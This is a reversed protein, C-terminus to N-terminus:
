DKTVVFPITKMKLGNNITAYYRGNFFKALDIQATNRKEIPTFFTKELVLHGLSDYIKLRTASEAKSKFVINIFDNSPNPFLAIESDESQFVSIIKSYEFSGDTDITKLRYYTFGEFPEVDWEQYISPQNNAKIIHFTQWDRLNESKELIFELIDEERDTEWNLRTRKHVLKGDFTILRAPLISGSKTWVYETNLACPELETDGAICDGCEDIYALGGVVGNCDQNNSIKRGIVDVEALGIKTNGIAQIRIYQGKINLKELSFIRSQINDKLYEHEAMARAAALDVNGFPTDNILVYFDKFHPSIIEQDTGNLEVTNWIDIYEIIKEEGLDMEWWPEDDIQTIASSGISDLGFQYFGSNIRANSNGDLARMAPTNILQSKFFESQSDSAQTATAFRSILENQPELSESNELQPNAFVGTNPANLIKVRMPFSKYEYTIRDPVLEELIIYVENDNPDLFIGNDTIYDELKQKSAFEYKRAKYENRLNDMSSAQDVGYEYAGIRDTIVGDITFSWDGTNWDMELDAQQNLTFTIPRTLSLDNSSIHIVNDPHESYITSSSEDDLHIGYLNAIRLTDLDIFLWPTFGNNRTKATTYTSNEVLKSATIGEKLDVLKIREFSHNHSHKWMYLGISNDNKGSIFLDKFSYDNQYTIRVGTNAGWIKMNTFISRSEHNVGMDREISSFGLNSNIITTNELILAVELPLIGDGEIAYENSSLPFQNFQFGSRLSALAQPDMRATSNIAANFNVIGVGMNADAIVNGRCVVARGKMGMGQGSFLYDDYFLSSQYPDFTHGKNVDIILNNDWFGTEDGAESVLASGTVNYIFNDSINAHSSHHTIGWGPNGAIVNGVVQAMNSGATSGLQHLHISYRGRHNSIYNSPADVLMSCEQGLASVYENAVVPEVWTNWLRDDLLKSKDTRGMDLFAANKIQVNMHNHMAMLHARHTSDKSASKFVINRNLNGVYCHLNDESRGLHNKKLKSTITIASGSINQIEHIENGNSIANKNGGLSVVISDGIQWGSPPNELNLSLDNKLADHSLKGMVSKAQGLIELQGMTILGISLQTPDWSSRGLVGTSDNISIKTLTDVSTDGLLAREFNKFRNDPGIEYTVNFHAQQDNYHNMADTNWVQSYGSNGNKHGEIDFTKFLIEINGDTPNDAHLEIKSNMLGTITEVLLKTTDNANTQKCVFNGEVRIAFIHASSQGEFTVTDGFPIYVIAADEPIAGNLWTNSDFWDGSQQAIHTATNAPILHNLNHQANLQIANLLVFLIFVNFYNTM